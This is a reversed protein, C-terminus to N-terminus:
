YQKPNFMQTPIRVFTILEKNKLLGSLKNIQKPTVKEARQM